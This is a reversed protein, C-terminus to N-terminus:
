FASGASFQFEGFNEGPQKDLKIGYSFGIPGFPSLFRIGAGIADRMTAFDIVQETTETNPGSGYVNGRDYFAFGRFTKTFPYQVELNFLLSQDGGLPDGEANKPGVDRITYGRLSSSGGMFYREFIPLNDGGYGSAVNVEGHVAGVLKGILPHYYTTEFGTRYFDSGGLPGGAIEFKAVHRWGITPNLFNDRSDHIFSPSIRSTTRTENKLFESLDAESVNTVEVEEFRYQLGVWDYEGLGRGLRISGGKSQTDFSFFDNERNFLDIGMLVQSDLFKPETFNLNFNTRRSSLATSFSLSQGRGFLNNQSISSNFILNEVSSFGAGISFSGTPRESLTTDIDILEPDEGRRTDTKVDDFFKLNNIRQKSRKLKDSDFLDGEKLRFERRIVNDRTKTNGAINVKGVYVKKGKDIEMNLDVTLSDDNIKINPNVDAYAYGKKSFVEALAVVDGRVQSENYIEKERTLIAEKLEAESLEPDKDIEVKGVRYRRGEEVPVTIYIEKLKNNVEIEPELVRVRLFGHDHYYSELKLLDLKLLDKRYIGSEDLFSLWSYAKTEIIKLLEKDKFTKNGSFRVKEINVKKGENVRMMVDVLGDENVTTDIQTKVFFFGKDHYVGTIGEKSEQILHDSFTAGRKINIVDFIEKADVKDNGVLRVDGISPIEEVIFVLKAGDATSQVDVKIDRFQGLSFIQEIDERIQNRVLPQGQESKIYFLITSSDIRQNGQIEISDILGSQQAFLFSPAALSFLLVTLILYIRRRKM